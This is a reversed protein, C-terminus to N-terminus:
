ARALVVGECYAAFRAANRTADLADRVAPAVRPGGGARLESAMGLLVDCIRDPDDPPAIWGGGRALFRALEGNAPTLALIPKEAGVYDAIKSPLYPSHEIPADIALLVDSEHMLRVSDQYSVPGRLTVLDALDLRDVLQRHSPHTAGPGILELRVGRFVAAERARALALLLGRPSRLGGLSGLSRIVIPGGDPRYGNGNRVAYAPDYTHPLVDIKEAAAPYKGGYWEKMRVSPVVIADARAFVTSELRGNIRRALGRYAFHPNDVWPDSLLTIWPIELRRKLYLGALGSSMPYPCTIVADFRVDAWQRTVRRVLRLHPYLFVDPLRYALPVVKRFARLPLPHRVPIRISAHFRRALEPYLTPDTIATADDATAGYLRWSEPLYRLLRGIQISQPQLYPPLSYAVVLVNV